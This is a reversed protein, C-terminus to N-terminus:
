RGAPPSWFGILGDLAVTRGRDPDVVAVRTVGDPDVVPMLFSSGDPAWLQHSLAYQDFYTLLQDVFLQAPAVEVDSRVKGSAVDVFSLRIETTPSPSESAVAQAEAGSVSTLPNALQQIRLAAITKGDPSWWFSVVSGDVLTRVKGSSADMLRLPGIPDALPSQVPETPGVSGLLDGGPDFTVSAIGFVPMSHQNSGDRAGVVVTTDGGTETRVYALHSGDASVVGPRFEAPAPLAPHTPQGDLGIEGLFSDSGTGVHALLENSAIWDFYLPNGVQVITTPDSGDLASSGDAAAVRLALRQPEQALFSVERGDPRWSLYFPQITGSQFITVPPTSSAAAGSPAEFVVVSRETSTTIVAAIRKGDPSWAPFAGSTDGSSLVISEGADDVVSLSGDRGVLAVSGSSALQGIAGASPATSAAASPPATASSSGTPESPTATSPFLVRPTGSPEPANGCAGAILGVLAILM